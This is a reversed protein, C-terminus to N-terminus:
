KTANYSMEILKKVNGIPVTGDLLVTVWNNKNMHYAPFIGPVGLFFEVKDTKVNIVDVAGDGSLRLIGRSIKMIIAFWKKNDGRRFM